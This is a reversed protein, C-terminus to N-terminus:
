ALTGAESDGQLVSAPTAVKKPEKSRKKPPKEVDAFLESDEMERFMFQGDVVYLEPYEELVDGGGDVLPNAGDRAVASLVAERSFFSRIHGDQYQAHYIRHTM